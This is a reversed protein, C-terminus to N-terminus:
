TGIIAKWDDEATGTPTISYHEVLYNLVNPSVFAPLTPGLRINKIGLYLLTLLVCVAKQEYWSLVISLPLENVGCGFAEALALAVRIASYADNCQGMDLIRPLDAVTGLDLDNFRYKGCALTLVVTDASSNKVLETYYNRGVRAGDCGGVLLFRKIEGTKVAEIVKDAIGLVAGHAFGTMVAEGGNIGTFQKDEAYGGLALAKEIVPTFDKDEGIHVLEPYSVVETTFVRDKYSERPPM